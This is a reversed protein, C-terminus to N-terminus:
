DDFQFDRGSTHKILAAFDDVSLMAMFNPDNGRRGGKLEMMQDEIEKDTLAEMLKTFVRKYEYADAIGDVNRDFVEHADQIDDIAWEPDRQCIVVIRQFTDFDYKSVTLGAVYAECDAFTHDLGLAQLAIPLKDAPIFDTPGPAGTQGTIYSFVEMAEAQFELTLTKHETGVPQTLAAVAAAASAM